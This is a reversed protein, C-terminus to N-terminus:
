ASRALIGIQYTAAAGSGNAIRLIDATAATVAGIGAADGCALLVVAGPKLPGITPSTGGLFGLFPNSGVGITLDSTNVSGAARPKNVVVLAVMEAATITAGFADSLAGALDIDDNSSADVTREDFWCLDAQAAGTGSALQILHELSPKFTDSGFDNSGTQTAKMRVLIESTLTM